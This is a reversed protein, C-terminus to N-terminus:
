VEVDKKSSVLSPPVHSFCVEGTGEEGGRHLPEIADAKMEVLVISSCVTGVSCVKVEREKTRHTETIVHKRNTWGGMRKRLPASDSRHKLVDHYFLYHVDQGPACGGECASLTVAPFLPSSASRVGSSKNVDDFPAYTNM